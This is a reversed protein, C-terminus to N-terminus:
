CPLTRFLTIDYTIQNPGMDATHNFDLTEIYCPIGERSNTTGGGEYFPSDSFLYYIPQAGAPDDFGECSGGSGPPAIKNSIVLKKADLSAESDTFLVGSFSYTVKADQFDMAMPSFQFPVEIKFFEREIHKKASTPNGLDICSGHTSDNAECIRVTM